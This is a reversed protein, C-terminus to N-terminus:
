RCRTCPRSRGPQRSDVFNQNEGAVKKQRKGSPRFGTRAPLQAAIAVLPMPELHESSPYSRGLSRLSQGPAPALFLYVPDNGNSCLLQASRSLAFVYPSSYVEMQRHRESWRTFTITDVCDRREAVTRRGVLLSGDSRLQCKPEGYFPATKGGVVAQVARAM